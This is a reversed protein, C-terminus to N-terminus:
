DLRVNNRIKPNILVDQSATLQLEIDVPSGKTFTYIQKLTGVNTEGTRIIKIEDDSVIEYSLGVDRLGADSWNGSNDKYEVAWREDGIRVEM